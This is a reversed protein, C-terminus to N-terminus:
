TMAGLSSLQRELLAVGAVDAVTAWTAWTAWTTLQLTQVLWKVVGDWRLALLGHICWPAERPDPSGKM